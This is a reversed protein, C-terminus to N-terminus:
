TSPRPALPDLTKELYGLYNALTVISSDGYSAFGDSEEHLMSEPHFISFACIIPLTEKFREDINHILANVYTQLLYKM